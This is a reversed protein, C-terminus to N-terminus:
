IVGPYRTAIAQSTATLLSSLSFSLQIMHLCALADSVSMSWYERPIWSSVSWCVALGIAAARLWFLSGVPPDVREVAASRGRRRM